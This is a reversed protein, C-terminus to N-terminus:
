ATSAARQAATAVTLRSRANVMALTSNTPEQSSRAAAAKTAAKTAADTVADILQGLVADSRYATAAAAARAGCAAVLAPQDRVLTLAARLSSASRAEYLVGTSLHSVLRAGGGEDPVVPCLGAAMAELISRGFPEAVLSTHVYVSSSARVSDLDPPHEHLQVGVPIAAPLAAADSHGAALRQLVATITRNSKLVSAMIPVRNNVKWPVILDELMPNVQASDQVLIRAQAKYTRPMVSTAAVAVLPAVVLAVAFLRARRVVLRLLRRPDISMTPADQDNM